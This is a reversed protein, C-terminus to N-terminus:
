GSSSESTRSIFVIGPGPQEFAPYCYGGSLDSDLPHTIVFCVVSDAPYHNIRHIANDVKQRFFRPWARLMYYDINIFNAETNTVFAHVKQWDLSITDDGKYSDVNWLKRSHIQVTTNEM